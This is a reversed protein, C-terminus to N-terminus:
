STQEAIKLLGEHILRRVLVIKSALSLSEPLDDVRFRDHAAIFDLAPAVSVPAIVSRTGFEIRVQKDERIVETRWGLRRAVETHGQLSRAQEIANFHPEPSTRLERSRAGLCRRMAETAVERGQVTQLLAAFERGVEEARAEDGPAFSPVARRFLVNREAVVRLSAELLDLWRLPYVGITLHMSPVETRVAEHIFGRPLYLIQGPETTPEMVPAGLEHEERKVVTEQQELPLLYQPAYVRWSKRGELQLVIVDHSDAHAAFGKAESPTFYMNVNVKQGIDIAVGSALRAVPTSRRNLKHVGITWGKAYARYIASMDPRGDPGREVSYSEVGYNDARILYDKSGADHGTTHDIIADLDDISPMDRCWEPFPREVYLPKKEWYESWFTELSVPHILEQLM